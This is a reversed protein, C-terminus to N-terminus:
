GGTAVALRLNVARLEELILELLGNRDNEVVSAINPQVVWSGATYEYVALLEGAPNMEYFLSGEEVEPKEDTSLGKYVLRPSLIRRVTM